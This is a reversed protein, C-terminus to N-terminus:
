DDIGVLRHRHRMMADRMYRSKNVYEKYDNWENPNKIWDTYLDPVGYYNAFDERIKPDDPLTAFNERLEKEVQRNTIDKWEKNSLGAKKQNTLYSGFKGYTKPLRPSDDELVKAAIDPRGQAIAIDAIDQKPVVDANIGPRTKNILYEWKHENETLANNLDRTYRNEWEFPGYVDELKALSRGQPYMDGQWAKGGTLKGGQGLGVDSYKVKNRNMAQRGQAIVNTGTNTAIYPGAPTNVNDRLTENKDLTRRTTRVDKIAGTYSTRRANPDSYLKKAKPKNNKWMSKASAWGDYGLGEKLNNPISEGAKPHGKPFRTYPMPIGFIAAEKLAQEADIDEGNFVPKILSGYLPVLDEAALDLTESIPGEPNDHFNKLARGGPILGILEALLEEKSPLNLSIVPKNPDHPGLQGFVKKTDAM